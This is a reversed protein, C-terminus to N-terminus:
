RRYELMDTGGAFRLSLPVLQSEDEMEDDVGRDVDGIFENEGDRGTTNRLLAVDEVAEGEAPLLKRILFCITM